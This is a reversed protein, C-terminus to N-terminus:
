IYYEIQNRHILHFVEFIKEQYRHFEESTRDQKASEEISLITNITGPHADMIVGRNGLYIAEEIDHTVFVVSIKRERYISLLLEQLEMRTFNDLAGFPEDMFLIKPELALSRAIATRQKMGGSIQHIYADKAQELHVLQLYELAKERRKEPTYMRNMRMGFEVNELVTKWPFLAYDQFVFTCGKQPERVEEGNLLISGSSVEELGAMLRLLTSKGCGSPGLLCLFEHEGITLNLDKLIIQEETDNKYRKTVHKVELLTM